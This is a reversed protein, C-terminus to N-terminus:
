WDSGMPLMAVGMERFITAYVQLTELLLQSVYHSLSKIFRTDYQHLEEFLCRELSVVLTPCSSPLPLCLLSFHRLDTTISNCFVQRSEIM